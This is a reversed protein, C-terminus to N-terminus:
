FYFVTCRRIYILINLIEFAQTCSDQKKPKGITRIAKKELIFVLYIHVDLANGRTVQQM